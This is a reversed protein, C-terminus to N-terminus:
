LVENIKKELMKDVLFVLRTSSHGGIAAGVACVSLPNDYASLVFFVCLGVFGCFILEGLMEFVTFHGPRSKNKGIFNIAGGMLAMIVAFLWLSLEWQLPNKLDGM